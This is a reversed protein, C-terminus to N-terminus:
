EDAESRPTLLGLEELDLQTIPDEDDTLEDNMSPLPINFNAPIRSSLLGAGKLEEVGPLDRLEELGFHDLFEKTTGLTVPRGPSRRRGRFRVWGAEMLVDLTGKSTQVGRVEEIEARTVPQHYAVIALVELAARSLKRVENEDTRIVFSLDAATRFAWHDGVQVLNVGRSAYNVKLRWMLEHVDVGHPLRDAIFAESVPQASAFVLAEAIREAEQLTRPDAADTM